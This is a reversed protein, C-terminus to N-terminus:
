GARRNQRSPSPLLKAKMDERRTDKMLCRPQWMGKSAKEGNWGQWSTEKDDAAQRCFLERPQTFTGGRVGSEKRDIHWNELFLPLRTIFSYHLTTGSQLQALHEPHLQMVRLTFMPHPLPAPSPSLVSIQSSPRKDRGQCLCARLTRFHQIEFCSAFWTLLAWMLSGFWIDISQCLYTMDPKHWFFLVTNETGRMM